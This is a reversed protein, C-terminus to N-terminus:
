NPDTHLTSRDPGVVRRLRIMDAVDLHESIQAALELPLNGLIDYQLSFADARAKLERWEDSALENMIGLYRCTLTLM